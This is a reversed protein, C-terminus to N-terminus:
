PSPNSKGNHPSHLPLHHVLELEGVGRVDTHWWGESLQFNWPPRTAEERGKWWLSSPALGAALRSYAHIAPM